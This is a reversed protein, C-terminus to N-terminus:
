ARRGPRTITLFLSVAVFYFRYRRTPADRGASVLRQLLTTKGSGSRGVMLLNGGSSATEALLGFADGVWSLSSNGSREDTTLLDASLPTRVENLLDIRM